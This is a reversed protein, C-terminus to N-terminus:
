YSVYMKLRFRRKNYTGESQRLLDKLDIYQIKIKDASGTPRFFLGTPLNQRDFRLDAQGEENTIGVQEFDNSNSTMSKFKKDNAYNKPVPPTTGKFSWIEVNPIKGAEYLGSVNKVWRVTTFFIELPLNNIMNELQSIRNTYFDGPNYRNLEQLYEIAATACNVAEEQSGGLTRIERMRAFAALTYKEYAACSDCQAISTQITAKLNNPTDGATLANTFANRANKYERLAFQRGGEEMFGACKSMHVKEVVKLLLVGYVIKSQGRLDIINVPLQNTGQAFVQIHTIKDLEEAAEAEVEELQDLREWEADSVDKGANSRAYINDSYSKHERQASELKAKADNLISIPITLTIINISNDGRKKTKSITAGRNLLEQCNITLDDITSQFEVEAKTKDMGADNGRTQDELLIPKQVEEILYARFFDPKTIVVWDVRNVDGRRNVEIKAENTVNKDVVVEYEYMGDSRKEAATVKAKPANVVTIVLDAHKSIILIGGAGNLSGIRDEKDYPSSSIYASQARVGLICMILMWFLLVKRM